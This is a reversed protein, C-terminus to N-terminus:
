VRALRFLCHICHTGIIVLYQLHVFVDFVAAYVHIKRILPAARRFLWLRPLQLASCPKQLHVEASLAHRHRRCRARLADFLGLFDM